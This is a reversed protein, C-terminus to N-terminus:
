SMRGEKSSPAPFRHESHAELNSSPPGSRTQSMTEPSPIVRFWATTKLWAWNKGCSTPVKHFELSQSANAFLHDRDEEGFGTMRGRVRELLPLCDVGLPIYDDDTGAWHRRPKSRVGDLGRGAGAAAAAPWWQRCHVSTNVGVAAAERGPCGPWYM